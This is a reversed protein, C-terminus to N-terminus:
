GINIQKKDGNKEKVVKPLNVVLIGNEYNATIKEKDVTEPLTFSRKFSSQHFERRTYNEQEEEQSQAIEASVTLLNGELNIDFNEKQYGAAAVELRFATESEVINVAPLTRNFLPREFTEDLLQSFNSPFLPSKMISLM